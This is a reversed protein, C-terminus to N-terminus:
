RGRRRLLTTLDEAIRSADFGFTSRAVDPPNLHVPGSREGWFSGGMEMSSANPDFEARKKWTYYDAGDLKAVIAIRSLRQSRDVRDLIVNAFQFSQRIREQVEEEILVQFGHSRTKLSLGLAIHGNESLAVFDGTKQSITLRDDINEFSNGAATDFISFDGFLSEKLIAERLSEEEIESPRLIRRIPGGAVALRLRPGSSSYYGDEGLDLFETASQLLEASDVPAVADALEHQHLSRTVERRLNEASSFSGRFVGQEWNEFEQVFEAQAAEFEASEDIFALIAKDGKAERYEQHTASIGDLPLPSGYRSGM